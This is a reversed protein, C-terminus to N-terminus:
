PTSWRPQLGPTNKLIVGVFFVEAGRKVPVYSWLTTQPKTVLHHAYVNLVVSKGVGAWMYKVIKVVYEHEDVASEEVGSKRKYQMPQPSLPFAVAPAPKNCRIHKQASIM